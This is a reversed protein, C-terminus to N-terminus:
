PLLHGVVGFLSHDAHDMLIYEEKTKHAVSLCWFSNMVTLKISPNLIKFSINISFNIKKIKTGDYRSSFPM